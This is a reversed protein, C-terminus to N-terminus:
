ADAVFQTVLAEADRDNLLPRLARSVDFAGPLGGITAIRPDRQVQRARTNGGPPASSVRSCRAPTVRDRPQGDPRALARGSAARTRLTPRRPSPPPWGLRTDAAGSLRAWALWHSACSGSVLEVHGFQASRVFRVPPLSLRRRGGRRAKVGGCSCSPSRRTTGYHRSAPWIRLVEDAATRWSLSPARWCSDHPPATTPLRSCCQTGGVNVSMCSRSSESQRSCPQWTGAWGSTPPVARPRLRCRRHQRGQIRRPCRRHGRWTISASSARRPPTGADRLLSQILRHWFAAGGTRTRDHGHPRRRTSALGDGNARYAGARM